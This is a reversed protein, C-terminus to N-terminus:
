TAKMAVILQKINESLVSTTEKFGAHPDDVDAYDILMYRRKLENHEGSM